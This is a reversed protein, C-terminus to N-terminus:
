QLSRRHSASWYWRSRGELCRASWRRAVKRAGRADGRHECSRRLLIGQNGCKKNDTKMLKQREPVPRWDSPRRTLTLTCANRVVATILKPDSNSDLLVNSFKVMIRHLYGLCSHWADMSAIGVAVALAPASISSNNSNFM